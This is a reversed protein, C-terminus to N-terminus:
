RMRYEREGIEEFMKRFKIAALKSLAALEGEARPLDGQSRFGMKRNRISVAFQARRARSIEEFTLPIRRIEYNIKDWSVQFREEIKRRDNEPIGSVIKSVPGLYCLTRQRVRKGERVGDVLYAYRRPGVKKVRVFM